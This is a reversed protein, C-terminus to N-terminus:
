DYEGLEEAKLPPDVLEVLLVLLTIRTALAKKKLETETRIELEGTVPWILDAIAEAVGNKDQEPLKANRM